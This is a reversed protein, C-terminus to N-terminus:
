IQAQPGGIKRYSAVPSTCGVYGGYNNKERKEPTREECKKGNQTSRTCVSSCGKSRGHDKRSSGRCCGKEKEGDQHRDSVKDNRSGVQNTTTCSCFCLIDFVELTRWCLRSQPRSLTTTSLSNAAVLNGLLSALVPAV